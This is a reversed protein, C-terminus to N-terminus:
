GHSVTLMFHHAQAELEDQESGPTQQWPARLVQWRLQYYAQWQDPSVPRTLQWDSPITM